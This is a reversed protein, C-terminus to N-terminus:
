QYFKQVNSLIEKNEEDENEVIIINNNLNQNNTNSNGTSPTPRASSLANAKCPLCSYYGDNCVTCNSCAVEGQSVTGAIIRNSCSSNTYNIWSTCQKCKLDLNTSNLTCNACWEYGLDTVVKFSKNVITTNTDSVFGNSNNTINSYVLCKFGFSSNDPYCAM